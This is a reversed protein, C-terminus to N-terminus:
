ARRRLHTGSTTPRLCAHARFARKRSPIAALEGEAHTRARELGRVLGEVRDALAILDGAETRTALDRVDALLRELEGLRIPTGRGWSFALHELRAIM